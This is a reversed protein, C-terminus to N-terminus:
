SGEPQTECHRPPPWKPLPLDLSLQQTEECCPPNDQPPSPCSTKSPRQLRWYFLPQFYQMRPGHRKLTKALIKVKKKHLHLGDYLDWTGIIPHPALHINPLTDCGRRIEMNIDYIVHPPTDTRPLLTSIM